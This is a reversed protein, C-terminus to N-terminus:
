GNRGTGVLRRALSRAIAPWNGPWGPRLMDLRYRPRMGDMWDRKYPNDGTGFDVAAVGDGDIAQAFMAASLSTGPSLAKASERHALKHIFATAAEVTWMQAAVAVGDARAVGLRLRGAAGEAEAFARLLSTCGEEPKWSERYIAEYEDWAAADFRTLVECTVKGGRRKLTTRLPGPRSALFEAFSRGGVTLHHNVDCPAMDVFWGAKGFAEALLRAEGHEDPVQTLTIRPAEGALDRALEILLARADAGTTVLPRVTFSYWNALAEIRRGKRTLALVARADGARAVAILPTLGGHSELLRWWALRDFPARATPADLLAALVPDGQVEKLDDHYTVSIVFRNEELLPGEIERHGAWNGSLDMPEVVEHQVARVIRRRQDQAPLSNAIM